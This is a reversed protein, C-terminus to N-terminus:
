VSRALPNQFMLKKSLARCTIHVDFQTSEQSSVSRCTRSLSPESVGTRSSKKGNTALSISNKVPDKYVLVCVLNPIHPRWLPMLLAMRPDKM